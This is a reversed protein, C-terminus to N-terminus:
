ENIVIAICGQGEASDLRMCIYKAKTKSDQTCSVEGQDCFINMVEYDFVHTNKNKPNAKFAAEKICWLKQLLWSQTHYSASHLQALENDTLFLRATDVLPQARLELDIGIGNTNATTGIAVAVDESHTLTVNRNPMRLKTTDESLQLSSLLPKLAARGLLWDQKRQPLKFKSLQTQEAPVLRGSEFPKEAIVALLPIKSYDSMYELFGTLQTKIAPM